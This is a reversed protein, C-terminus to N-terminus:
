SALSPVNAIEFSKENFTKNLFFDFNSINNIDNLDNVYYCTRNEIEKLKNEAM